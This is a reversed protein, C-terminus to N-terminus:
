ILGKELCYHYIGDNAVHGCIDTAVSKLRDSANAMAVGVGADKIMSLANLGDGFAMPASRPVGLQDALVLLAERQPKTYGMSFGCHVHWDWPFRGRWPIDVKEVLPQVVEFWVGIEFQDRDLSKMLEVYVPDLMADYQLLFTGRLNHQKMLEIQKQVPLVLDMPERPECGRIFNVINIIQRKKM